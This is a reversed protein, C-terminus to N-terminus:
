RGERGTTSGRCRRRTVGRRNGGRSIMGGRCRLFYGLSSGHMTTIRLSTTCCPWIWSPLDVLDPTFNLDLQASRCTCIVGYCQRVCILYIWTVKLSVFSTMISVVLCSHFCHVQGQQTLLDEHGVQRGPAPNTEQDRSGASAEHQLRQRCGGSCHVIVSSAIRFASVWHFCVGLNFESSVAM